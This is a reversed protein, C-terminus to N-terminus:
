SLPLQDDPNSAVTRTGALACIGAPYTASCVTALLRVGSQSDWYIRPSKSRLVVLVGTFVPRGWLLLVCRGSSSLVAMLVLAATVLPQLVQGLIGLWYRGNGARPRELLPHLGVARFDHYHM